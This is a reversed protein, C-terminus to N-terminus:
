SFAARVVKVADRERVPVERALALGALRLQADEVRRNFLVAPLRRVRHDLYDIVVHGEQDIRHRHLHVPLPQRKVQDDMWNHQRAPAGVPLDFLHGRRCTLSDARFRQHMDLDIPDDRRVLEGREAGAQRPDEPVHAAGHSIPLLHHRLEILRETLDLGGARGQGGIFHEFALRKQSPEGAIM